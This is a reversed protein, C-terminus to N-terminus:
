KKDEKLRTWDSHPGHLSRGAAYPTGDDDIRVACKSYTPNAPDQARFTRSALEEAERYAKQSETLKYPDM